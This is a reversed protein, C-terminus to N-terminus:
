KSSRGKKGGYPPRVALFRTAFLARDAAGSFRSRRVEASAHIMARPTEVLGVHTVKRPSGFFFLDGAAFPGRALAFPRLAAAQDRADRPLPVGAVLFVSRVLGSCDLGGSTTGGWLYPVGLLSRAARVVEDARAQRFAWEWDLETGVDPELFQEAAVFLSAGQAPEAVLADADMSGVDGNALRVMARTGARRIPIVRCGLSLSRVAGHSGRLLARPIAVYAGPAALCRAADHSSGLSWAATWGRLGDPALVARWRRDASAGTALLLHGHPIQSLLEARHDPERRLDCAGTVVPLLARTAGAKTGRASM